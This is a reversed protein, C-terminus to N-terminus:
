GRGITGRGRLADAWVVVVAGGRLFGVRSSDSTSDDSPDKDEDTSDDEDDPEHFTLLVIGCGGGIVEVRVIIPM